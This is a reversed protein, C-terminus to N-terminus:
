ADTLPYEFLREELISRTSPRDLGGSGSLVGSLRCLRRRSARSMALTWCLTRCTEPAGLGIISSFRIMDLGSPHENKPERTVSTEAVILEAVLLEVETIISEPDSM